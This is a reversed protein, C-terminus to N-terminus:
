VKGGWPNAVNPLIEEKKKKKPQETKVPEKEEKSEETTALEEVDLVWGLELYNQVSKPRILQMECRIGKEIHSNGARYVCVAM